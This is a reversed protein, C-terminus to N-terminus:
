NQRCAIVTQHLLECPTRHEGFVMNSRDRHISHRKSYNNPTKQGRSNRIM